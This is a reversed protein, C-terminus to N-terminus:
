HRRFYDRQFLKGVHRHLLQSSDAAGTFILKLQKPLSCPLVQYPIDHTPRRSVLIIGLLANNGSV